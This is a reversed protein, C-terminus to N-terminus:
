HQKNGDTEKNQRNPYIKEDAMMEKEKEERALTAFQEAVVDTIPPPAEPTSKTKKRKKKAQKAAVAAAAAADDARPDYRGVAFM